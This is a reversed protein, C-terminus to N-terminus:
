YEYNEDTNIEQLGNNNNTDDNNSDINFIIEPKKHTRRINTYEDINQEDSDQFYKVIKDSKKFAEMIINNPNSTPSPYYGTQKDIRILNITSPIRFPISQTNELAKLMFNVFIPAAVSSGTENKGLTTPIDYGIYIGVILDPTFGVFWADNSNNTTGTKGGIIKHIAQARWGTGYKVVGELMSTIQYATASDTIEKRSDSLYPIKIDEIKTKKNFICGFCKEKNNTYIIKGYKDAIKYIFSPTIEKGGNIIMSYGRVVKLLNSEISGLAISYIRRPHETLQFRKMVKAVKSLGVDRALRVTTVNRSKELGVRLTTPGYFVDTNNKPIYLPKDIGQDLKIEEDIVISAPTWGNELATLYVFPKALSGIQREAQIARNFDMQSDIYGGMMAYINGNHPNMAILAGNVNPIQKLYYKNINQKDQQVVIVDGVSLHLESVTQIKSPITQKDIYLGWDLNKLPIYGKILLNNDDTLTIYENNELQYNYKYLDAYSIKKLGIVIKENQEDIKLVVAKEWDNRYQKKIQFKQLVDAWNKKFNNTQNKINGIVGRFGYKKDYKEIGYKLYKNALIQLRPELTTLVINGSELLKEEGYLKILEKRVEESFFEANSVEKIDRKRLQITENIANQEQEETIYGLIQMRHIIWNRRQILYQINNKKTPDLRGPAKPLSALVAAEGITLEKLSKNFYNLSASAIGYSKNGFYIQNLYLELIKSKSFTNTLRLAIIAEKIKRSLTKERTLFFNKAVQQTITSGGRIQNKGSIKSMLNSIAASIISKISIGVNEYFSADEASIFANKVFDPVEDISVFLRNEKYYEKLLTGDNSYLRTTIPPQYDKLNIHNPVSFSFYLLSGIILFFCVACFIIFSYISINLIKKKFNIKM